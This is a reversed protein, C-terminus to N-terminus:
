LKTKINVNGRAELGLAGDTALQQIQARNLGMDQLIELMHTGPELVSVISSGFGPPPKSGQVQPHPLPIMSSSVGAEKPSLVPVTCSDTGHFVETWYGRTNTLFGEKIFQALKPWANRDGQVSLDPRWGDSSAFNKPLNSTFNQLFAQFFQPELCGVSMWGGDKCTYVGYFPAGGDLINTGRPGSMLSSKEFFAHMLPFSAMYRTGQVMDTDVVQGRESKGREILALLIGLACMIGGGAFDAALNLPFLPKEPGPLMALIGSLAIYNIDHGAMDKHPGTRPFGIIRAYILKENLGNKNDDGLFV